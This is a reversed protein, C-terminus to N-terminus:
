PIIYIMGTLVAAEVIAARTDWPPRQLLCPAPDGPRIHGLTSVPCRPANLTMNYPLAVTNFTFRAASALPQVWPHYQHGHRELMVDEFYLPYSCVEAAAWSMIKAPEAPLRRPPLELATRQDLDRQAVDPPLLGDRLRTDPVSLALPQLRQQLQEREPVRLFRQEEQLQEQPTQPTAAPGEAPVDRRQAAPAPPPTPYADTGLADPRQWAFAGQAGLVVLAWGSFGRLWNIRHNKLM